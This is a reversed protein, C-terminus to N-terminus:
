LFLRFWFILLTSSIACGFMCVILGGTFVLWHTLLQLVPRWPDEECAPYYKRLLPGLFVHVGLLFCVIGAAFLVLSNM